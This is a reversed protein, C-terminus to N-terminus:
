KKKKQNGCKPCGQKLRIHAEPSQSFTGHIPCIIYVKRDCRVYEVKSYDYKDGHVLRAEQIFQETTKKKSM